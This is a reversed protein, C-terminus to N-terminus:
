SDYANAANALDANFKDALAQAAAKEASPTVSVLAAGFAATDNKLSAVDGKAIGTVGLSAFQPKLAILRDTASKVNVETGTLTNIIDEADADTPTETLGEVDTTGSKIKDDLSVAASHIALASFYNLDNSALQSNLSTVASDIAAVDSKVQAVTTSSVISALVLLLASSTFLFKM